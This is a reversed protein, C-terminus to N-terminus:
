QAAEPPDAPAVVVTLNRLDLAYARPDGGVSETLADTITRQFGAREATLAAQAKEIASELRQIRLQADRIALKTETPLPKPAAEPAVTPEAANASAVALLVAVILRTM